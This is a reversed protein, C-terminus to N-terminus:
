ADIPRAKLELHALELGAGGPRSDQCIGIRIHLPEFRAAGVPWDTEICVSDARAGQDVRRRPDRRRRPGGGSLAQDKLSLGLRQWVDVLARLACRGAFQRPLSEPRHAAARPV